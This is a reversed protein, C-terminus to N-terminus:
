VIFHSFYVFFLDLVGNSNNKAFLSELFFNINFIHCSKLFQLFHGKEFSQVKLQWFYVFFSELVM